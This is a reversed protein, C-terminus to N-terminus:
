QRKRNCHPLLKASFIAYELQCNDYRDLGEDLEVWSGCEGEISGSEGPGNQGRQADGIGDATAL